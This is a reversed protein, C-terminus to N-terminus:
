LPEETSSGMPAGYEDYIGLGQSNGDIGEIADVHADIDAAAEPLTWVVVSGPGFGTRRSRVGLTKKARRLTAESIGDAKAQRTVDKAPVPGNLLLSGLWERAEDGARRDEAGTPVELLEAASLAVEGQWDIVVAGNAAETLKFALAPPAAGLNSKLPALVRREDDEPHRAVLLASRAAGVIGISGGGRYLAQGGSGKNLHRIAVVAAGTEEALRALPALARRVDQDRHANTDAGLFAMLPDVVVLVAGVRTMAERLAGLDRPIEPLREGAPGAMADLAVVRSLDAGAAELRPRVTDALGDEATMIVVGGVVGTTGDPMPRGTTVRAALDCLMVTKGLGPDGDILSVKARPIRREWLWEVREPTVNALEIIIPRERPGEALTESELLTDIAVVRALAASFPGAQLKSLLASREQGLAQRRVVAADRLANAPVDAEDVLRALLEPWGQSPHNRELTEALEPLSVRELGELAVLVRGLRRDTFDSPGVIELVSSALAPSELVAGLLAVEADVAPMM